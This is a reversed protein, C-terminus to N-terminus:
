RELKMHYEEESIENNRFKLFLLLNNANFEEPKCQVIETTSFEDLIKQIPSMLQLLYFVRAIALPMVISSAMVRQSILDKSVIKVHKM